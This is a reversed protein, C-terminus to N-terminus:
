LPKGDKLFASSGSLEQGWKRHDGSFQMGGRVTGDWGPEGIGQGGVRAGDRYFNRALRVNTRVPITRFADPVALYVATLLRSYVTVISQIKASADTTLPELFDDLGEPMTPLSAFVHAAGPVGALFDAAQEDRLGLDNISKLSKGILQRAEAIAGASRFKGDVTFFLPDLDFDVAGSRQEQLRSLMWMIRDVIPTQPLRDYRLEVSVLGTGPDYTCDLHTSAVATPWREVLRLLAQGKPIEPLNPIVGTLGSLVGSKLKAVYIQFPTTVIAMRRVAAHYASKRVGSAECPDDRRTGDEEYYPLDASALVRAAEYTALRMVHKDAWMLSVEIAFLCLVLFAPFVLIFEVIVSGRQHSPTRPNTTM